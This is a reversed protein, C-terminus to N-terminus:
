LYNQIYQNLIGFKQSKNVNKRMFKGKLNKYNEKRIKQVMILFITEDVIDDFTTNM